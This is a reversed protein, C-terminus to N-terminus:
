LSDIITKLIKGQANYKKLKKDADLYRHSNPVQVRRQETLIKKYFERNNRYKGLLLNRAEPDLDSAWQKFDDDNLVLLDRGVELMATKLLNDPSNSM